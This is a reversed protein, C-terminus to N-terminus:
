GMPCTPNRPGRQRAFEADAADGHPLMHFFQPGSSECKGGLPGAAITEGSIRRVKIGREDFSLEFIACGVARQFNEIFDVARVILGGALERLSLFRWERDQSAPLRLAAPAETADPVALRGSVEVRAEDKTGLEFGSPHLGERKPHTYVDTFEDGIKNMDFGADFPGVIDKKFSTFRPAHERLRPDIGILDAIQDESKAEVDVLRRGEPRGVELSPGDSELFDGVNRQVNVPERGREDTAHQEGVFAKDLAGMEGREGVEPM